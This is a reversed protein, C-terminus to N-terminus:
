YLVRVGTVVGDGLEPVPLLTFIALSTVSLFKTPRLSTKAGGGGGKADVVFLMCLMISKM